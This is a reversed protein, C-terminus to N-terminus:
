PAKKLNVKQGMVTGSFVWFHMLSQCIVVKGLGLHFAMVVNGGVLTCGAPLSCIWHSWRHGFPGLYVVLLRAGADFKMVLALLPFLVLLPDTDWSTPLSLKKM